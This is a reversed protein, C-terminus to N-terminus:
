NLSGCITNQNKCINREIIQLREGLEVYKRALEGHRAFMSKRVKDSSEKCAKIENKLRDIEDKESLPFFELQCAM